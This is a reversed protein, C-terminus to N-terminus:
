ARRRRSVGIGLLGLGLLTLTAPEPVSTSTLVGIGRFSFTTGDDTVTVTTPHFFHAADTFIGYVNSVNIAPEDPVTVPTTGLGAFTLMDGTGTSRSATGPTSCVASTQTTFPVCTEVGVKFNAFGPLVVGLSTPTNSATIAFGFSVNGPNLSTQVAFEEFGVTLGGETATQGGTDFLLTVTPMSGTFTPIPVGTDGPSITTPNSWAVSCASV